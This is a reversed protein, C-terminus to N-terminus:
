RPVFTYDKLKYHIFMNRFWNGKFTELRAHECRASEYLILDGVEAYIKNWKGDHGQIDLPWDEQGNLDKDVILISSIHHTEIRDKHSALTAGNLYSRIGYIWTSQLPTQAFQEHLDQLDSHIKKIVEPYIDMSMIESTIGEGKIINEKGEFIEEQKKDKLLEYHKKILEWTDKPCKVVKFGEPSFKPLQEYNSFTKSMKKNFEIKDLTANWENERWWSTIVYKVGKVVECGEHAFTNDIQGNNLNAWLVAKGAKPKLKKNLNRFYTEGGEEVDNLYIMLTHTRNGSFLCETEYSSGHFADNHEKFYQGPKYVQGQLSEGKQIPINIYESIRSKLNSVRSDNPDLNCTFSTRFSTTVSGYNESVQSPQNNSEIQKIFYQCEEPSLFDEIEIVDTQM